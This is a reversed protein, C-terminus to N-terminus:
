PLNPLSEQLTKLDQADQASVPLQSLGTYVKPALWTTKKVHGDIYAIVCGKSHRDSPLNLWKAIPARDLGFNGDEICNPNEDLFTFVSSPYLIQTTKHVADPLTPHYTTVLQNLAYSRNRPLKDNKSFTRDTPCKYIDVGSSYRFLVGNKIDSERSYFQVEGLVWSNTDSASCPVSDVTPYNPPMYEGNDGSYMLHSAQLQKLNNVCKIENAREKAKSLAPLLMAALIAIIAIVVLLEILTFGRDRHQKRGENV